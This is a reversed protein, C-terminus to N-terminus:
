SIVPFADRIMIPSPSDPLMQHTDLCINFGPVLIQILSGGGGINLTPVLHKGLMVRGHRSGCDDVLLMAINSSKTLHLELRVLTNFKM